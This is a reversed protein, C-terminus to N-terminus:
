HTVINGMYSASDGKSPSLTLTANGTKERYRLHLTYNIRNWQVQIVTTWTGDEDSNQEITYSPANFALWAPFQGRGATSTSYPLSIELSRPYVAVFCRAPDLTQSRSGFLPELEYAEFTFNGAALATRTQELAKQQAEAREQQRAQKEASKQASATLALLALSGILLLRKM